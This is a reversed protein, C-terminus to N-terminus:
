VSSVKESRIGICHKGNFDICRNLNRTCHLKNDIATGISKNNNNTYKNRKKARNQKGKIRERSIAIKIADFNVEIENSLYVVCNILCHTM